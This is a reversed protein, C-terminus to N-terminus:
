VLQSQPIAKILRKDYRVIQLVIYVYLAYFALKQVRFGVHYCYTTPSEDTRNM